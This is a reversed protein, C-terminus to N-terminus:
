IVEYVIVRSEGNVTYDAQFTVTTSTATVDYISESMYTSSLYFYNAYTVRRNQTAGSNLSAGGSGSTFLQQVSCIYRKGVELGTVSYGAAKKIYKITTGYEIANQYDVTILSM